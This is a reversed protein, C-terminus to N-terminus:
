LVVHLVSGVVVVVGVGVHVVGVGVHVVVAAGACTGNSSQHVRQQFVVSGRKVATGDAGTFVSLDGRRAGHKSAVFGLGATGHKHVGLTIEGTLGLYYLSVHVSPSSSSSSSM